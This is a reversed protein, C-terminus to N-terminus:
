PETRDKAQGLEMKHFLGSSLGFNANESGTDGKHVLAENVVTEGLM